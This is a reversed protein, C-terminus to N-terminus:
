KASAELGLALGLRRFFERFSSIGFFLDANQGQALITHGTDNGAEAFSTFSVGFKRNVAEQILDYAKEREGKSLTERIATIEPSGEPCYEKLMAEFGATPSALEAHMLPLKRLAASFDPALFQPDTKWYGREPEDIILLLTDKRGATFTELQTLVQERIRMSALMGAFHGAIRHRSIASFNIFAAFGEPAVAMRSVAASVLESFGPRRNEELPLCAMIKQSKRSFLNELGALDTAGQLGKGAEALLAAREAANTRASFALAMAFAPLESGQHANSGSLIEPLNFDDDSIMALKKGIKSMAQIINKRSTASPDAWAPLILQFGQWPYAERRSAADRFAASAGTFGSTCFVILNRAPTDVLLGRRRAMAEISLPQANLPTILDSGDPTVPTLSEQSWASPYCFIILLLAALFMFNRM